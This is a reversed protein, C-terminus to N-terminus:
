PHWIFLCKINLKCISFIHAFGPFISDGFLVLTKSEGDVSVISSLLLFRYLSFSAM